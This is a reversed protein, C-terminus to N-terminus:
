PLFSSNLPSQPQSTQVGFLGIARDAALQGADLKYDTYQITLTATGGILVNTVSKNFAPLWFDGVKEYRHEIQTKKIWISPNKAPEADISEVAFDTGNVCIEGRFLYKDNRVPDARLRYCGGHQSAKTGLLEFKYNDRTLATKRQNAADAADKESELLRKLVRNQLLKSGSQSIIDFSKTAPASYRATVIMNAEQHGPFGQYDLHYIRRGTFGRLNRARQENAQALRTVIEEATMDPTGATAAQMGPVPSELSYPQVAARIALCLITAVSVIVAVHVVVKSCRPSPM